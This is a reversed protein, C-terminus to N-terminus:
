CTLISTAVGNNVLSGVLACSSTVMHEQELGYVYSLEYRVERLMWNGHYYLEWPLVTGMNITVMIICNGHHYNGHYYLEWPSICHLEWPSVTGMIIYLTIGMTICNGHHYLEWPSVTGMTICNYQLDLSCSVIATLMHFDHSLNLLFHGHSVVKRDPQASCDSYPSYLM